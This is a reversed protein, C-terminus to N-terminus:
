GVTTTNRSARGFPPGAEMEFCARSLPLSLTLGYNPRMTVKGTRNEGQGLKKKAVEEREQRCGRRRRRGVTDKEESWVVQAMVAFKEGERWRKGGGGGSKQERFDSIERIGGGVAPSSNSTEMVRQSIAGSRGSFLILKPTTYLPPSRVFAEAASRSARKRERGGSFSNCVARLRSLSLSLCTPLEYPPAFESKKGRGTKWEGGGGGGGNKSMKM